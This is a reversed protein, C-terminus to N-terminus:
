KEPTGLGAGRISSDGPSTPQPTKKQKEYLELITKENSVPEIRLLSFGAQEMKLFCIYKETNNVQFEIGSGTYNVFYVSMGEPVHPMFEKYKTKIASGDHEGWLSKIPKLEVKLVTNGPENTVSCSIIEAVVAHTTKPLVAETKEYGPAKTAFATVGAMTLSLMFAICLKM